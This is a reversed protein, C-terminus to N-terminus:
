MVSNVTMLDPNLCCKSAKKEGKEHAIHAHTHKESTEIILHCDFEKFLFLSCVCVSVYVYM